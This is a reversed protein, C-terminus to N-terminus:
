FLKVRIGKSNAFLIFGFYALFMILVLIIVLSKIKERDKFLKNLVLIAVIGLVGGLTNLILDDIDMIGICFIFQIVEVLLSTLFVSSFLKGFSSKESYLALYVGFPVFIVVNGVVNLIAIYINVNEYYNIITAFPVLSVTRNIERDFDFLEFPTINKFFLIKFMLLTYACFVVILILDKISLNKKSM